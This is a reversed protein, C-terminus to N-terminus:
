KTQAEAFERIVARASTLGHRRTPSINRDLGASEIPDADFAAIEQPTFGSYFDCLLAVLGRVIPGETECRFYCRGDRLESALYVLSICGLVRNQPIRESEALPPRKKARDVIVGLREQPDDIIALDDTLHQLKEALTM